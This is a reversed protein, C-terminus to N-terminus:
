QGYKSELPLFIREGMWESSDKDDIYAMPKSAIFDVYQELNLARIVAHAKKYGSASWVLIVAGRAKREKLIKINALNPTVYHQEGDYPNIFTIAKRGKPVKGWSIICDDVDVPLLQETEIVQPKHNM